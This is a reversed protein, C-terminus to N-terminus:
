PTLLATIRDSNTIVDPRFTVHTIPASDLLGQIEQGRDTVPSDLVQERQHVWPNDALWQHPGPLGHVLSMIAYDAEDAVHM